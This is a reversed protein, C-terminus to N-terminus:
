RRRPALTLTSNAYDLALADFDSLVDSGLLGKVGPRDPQGPLNIGLITRARLRLDGVRWDRVRVKRASTTASVGSVGHVTGDVRLGLAKVVHRDIASRSAGTDLIFPYPGRGDIFMPVLALTSGHRGHVVKIAVQRGHSSGISAGSDPTSGGGCATAGVAALALLLALLRRTM